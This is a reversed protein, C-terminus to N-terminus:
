DGPDGPSLPTPIEDWTQKLKWGIFALSGLPGFYLWLAWHHWETFTSLNDFGWFIVGLPIIGFSAIITAEFPWLWWPTEEFPIM